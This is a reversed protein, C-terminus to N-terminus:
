RTGRGIVTGTKAMRIVWDRRSVISGEGQFWTDIEVVDGRCAPAFRPILVNARVSDHFQVRTFADFELIASTLSQRFFSRLM